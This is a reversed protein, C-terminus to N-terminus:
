MAHPAGKEMLRTLAKRLESRGRAIAAEITRAVGFDTVLAHDGVMGPDHPQNGSLLINEPKIDRHLVGHRHAYDLADAVECTLRVAEDV